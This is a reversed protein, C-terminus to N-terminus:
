RSSEWWDQFIALSEDARPNGPSIQSMQLSMRDGRKLVRGAQFSESQTGKAGIDTLLVGETGHVIFMKLEPPDSERGLIYITYQEGNPATYSVVSTLDGAMYNFYEPEMLDRPIPRQNGRLWEIVPSVDQEVDKALDEDRMELSPGEGVELSARGASRERRGISVRGTRGVSARDVDRVDIAADSKPVVIESRDTRAPTRRDADRDRQFDQRQTRQRQLSLDIEQQLSVDTPRTRDRRMQERERTTERRRTETRQPTEEKEQEAQKERARVIDVIVEKMSRPMEPVSIMVEIMPFLTFVLVMIIGSIIVSFIWAKRKKGTQPDFEWDM